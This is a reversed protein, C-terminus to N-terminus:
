KNKQKWKKWTVIVLETIFGVAVYYLDSWALDTSNEALPNLNLGKAGVFLIVPIMVASSLWNDWTYGLYAGIPFIKKEDDFEDKDIRFLIVNFALWGFFTAFLPHTIISQM